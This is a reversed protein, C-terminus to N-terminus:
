GIRYVIGEGAEARDAVFQKAQELLMGMFSVDDRLRDGSRGNEVYMALVDVKDVRALGRGVVDVQEPTLVAYHCLYGNAYGDPYTVDGRVLDLGTNAPLRDSSTLLRQFDHWSKDLDLWRDEPDGDHAASFTDNMYSLPDRRVLEDDSARVSCASYRIGM